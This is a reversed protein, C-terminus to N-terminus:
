QIRRLLLSINESIINKQRQTSRGRSLNDCCHNNEVFFATKVSFSKLILSAAEPTSAMSPRSMDESLRPVSLDRRVM